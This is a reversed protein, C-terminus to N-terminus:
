LRTWDASILIQTFITRNQLSFNCRMAPTKTSFIPLKLAILFYDSIDTTIVNTRATLLSFDCLFNDILSACTNSIRAPLSIVPHLALMNAANIFEMATDTDDKILNVKFDGGM